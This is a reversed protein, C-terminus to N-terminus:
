NVEILAALWDSRLAVAEADFGVVAQELRTQAELAQLIDFDIITLTPISVTCTMGPM